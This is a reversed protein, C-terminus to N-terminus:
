RRDAEQRRRVTMGAALQQEWRAAGEGELWNGTRPDREFDGDRYGYRKQLLQLLPNRLAPDMRVREGPLYSGVEHRSLSEEFLAEEYTCGCNLHGAPAMRPPYARRERRSDHWACLANGARNLACFQRIRAETRNHWERQFAPSPPPPGTRQAAASLQRVQAQSQEYLVQLQHVREELQRNRELAQELDSPASYSTGMFSAASHPSDPGGLNRGYGTYSDPLTSPPSLSEPSHTHFAGGFTPDFANYASSPTLTAGSANQFSLSPTDAYSMSLSTNADQQASWNMAGMGFVDNNSAHGVDPGVVGYM